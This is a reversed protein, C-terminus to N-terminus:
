TSRQNLAVRDPTAYGREACHEDASVVDEVRYRGSIRQPGDQMSLSGREASIMHHEHGVRQNGPYADRSDSVPQSVHVGTRSVRTPGPEQPKAKDRRRCKDDHM